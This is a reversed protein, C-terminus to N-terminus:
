PLDLAGGYNSFTFFHVVGPLPVKSVHGALISGKRELFDWVHTQTGSKVSFFQTQKEFNGLTELFNTQKQPLLGQFTCKRFNGLFPYKNESFIVGVYMILLTHTQAVQPVDAVLGFRM